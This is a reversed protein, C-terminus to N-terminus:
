RAYLREQYIYEEVALSVLFRISRGQSVAYRISTSSIAFTTTRLYIIPFQGSLLYQKQTEDYNYGPFHEDLVAKLEAESYGPRDVVVLHAYSALHRYEKWTPLEVFADLGIIFYFDAEPGYATRLRRLTEISYSRGAIEREIESVAFHNVDKIALQVMRLRQPFPTVTEMTKHPPVVTPIFLVKELALSEYVEEAMRLHGYHIPDFAGGLIGLRM